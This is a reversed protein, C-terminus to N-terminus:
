LELCKLGMNSPTFITVLTATNKALEKYRVKVFRFQCKEVSFTDRVTAQDSDQFKKPKNQLNGRLANKNLARSKVPFMAVHPLM